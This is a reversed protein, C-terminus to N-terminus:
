CGSARTHWASGRSGAWCGLRWARSSSSGPLGGAIVSELLFERAIRGRDAGLATRVAVEQQRGEARVLFLNAVNACAILLVMGVTGLLVWLVTGIDRVVDQKLPHINPAFRAERLMGLTIGDPFKETALPIMRGVDANAQEVTMGPKLRALAQYSFNGVFVQSRDFQFPLYVAPDYRLFRLDPPMVGIIERTRGNVTLTRGIVGADGGLRSQWYGYGLIATEPAGPSDDEKTFRRGIMPQIGLIPFTGDTVRM